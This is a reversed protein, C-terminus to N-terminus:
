YWARKLARSHAAQGAACGEKAAALTDHSGRVAALEGIEEGVDGGQVVSALAGDGVDTV